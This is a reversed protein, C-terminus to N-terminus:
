ELVEKYIRNYSEVMLNITFIKNARKKAKIGEAKIIKNGKKVVKSLVKKLGSVNTNSAIYGADGVIKKADGINTAIPVLETLMGEVLVNSFGEGFRSPSIIIDAMNYYKEIDLRMGLAICDEPTDLKETGKGILVLKINKHDGKKMEKFAQILNHYNKMPDVRAVCMFILSNNKFNYKNRLKKRLNKSYKFKRSDIGNFVVKTNKSSFGIKNHYIMGSYSNYIIKNSIKSLLRCAILSYRFGFSYYKTQMDSCRISWILPKDFIKLLKLLSIFFCSNYMWTQIIDPNFKKLINIFTPIKLFIFFKYKAKLEYYQIGYTDLADKYISADNLLIVAHQQNKKLLEVLQREAGGNGLSAIVHLVKIKKTM